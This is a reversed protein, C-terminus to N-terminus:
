GVKKGHVIDEDDQLERHGESDQIDPQEARTVRYRSRVARVLEERVEITTIKTEMATKPHLGSPLM